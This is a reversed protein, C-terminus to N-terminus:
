SETRGDPVPDAEPSRHAPFEGDRVRITLRAGAAVHDPNRVVQGEDDRVIAYGRQLVALPSLQGLAGSLQRLHNARRTQDRAIAHVLGVRLRELRGRELAVAPRAATLRAALRALRAFAQDHRRRTLASLQQAQMAVQSRQLAIRQRPHALRANVVALCHRADRMRRRVALRLALAASDLQQAAELWRQSALEAAATPTSARLDAALEALTTDREHGIACILPVESSAVARVVREDNFCWLDEISGGGRVLLLVDIGDEGARVSARGLADCLAPIASDGQVPAPYLVVPVFPARRALSALVDTLAAAAPSTVVGIGRPYPPLPKHRSADFLGERTLRERLRLYAEYLSGEGAARLTQVRLQFEGRSEYLTVNAQVQVAMGDSPRVRLLQAQARWIVCRVQADADQLTFYIHGPRSQFCNSIEGAIWMLPFGHELTERALRNLVGVPIADRSMPNVMSDLLIDTM